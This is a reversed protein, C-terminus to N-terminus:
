VTEPENSKLAGGFAPDNKMELWKAKIQRKHENEDDTSAKQFSMINGCIAFKSRATDIQLPYV